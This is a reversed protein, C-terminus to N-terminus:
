SSMLTMKCFQYFMFSLLSGGLNWPMNKCFQYFMFSLLYWSEMAHTILIEGNNVPFVPLLWCNLILFFILFLNYKLINCKKSSNCGHNNAGMGEDEANAEKIKKIEAEIQEKTL